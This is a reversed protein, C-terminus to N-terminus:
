KGLMFHYIVYFGSNLYEFVVEKIAREHLWWKDPNFDASYVAAHCIRIDDHRFIWKATMLARRMHYDGTVLIISKFHNELIIARAAKLEDFTSTAVAEGLIISGRSIGNSEFFNTYAGEQTVESSNLLRKMTDFFVNEKELV